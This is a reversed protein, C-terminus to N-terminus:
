VVCIKVRPVESDAERVPVVSAAGATVRVPVIGIGLAAVTQVPVVNGTVGVVYRVPVFVTLLAM